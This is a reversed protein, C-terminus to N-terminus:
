VDVPLAGGGGVSASPRLHRRPPRAKSTPRRCGANGDGGISELTGETEVITADIEVTMMTVRESPLAGAREQILTRERSVRMETLISEFQPIEERRAAAAKDDAATM